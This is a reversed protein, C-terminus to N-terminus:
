PKQGEKVRLIILNVLVSMVFGILSALAIELLPSELRQYGIVGITVGAVMVLMALAVGLFVRLAM